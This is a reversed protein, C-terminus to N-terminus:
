KNSTERIIGIINYQTSKLIFFKFTLHKLQSLYQYYILRDRNFHSSYNNCIRM